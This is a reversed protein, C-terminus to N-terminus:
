ELLELVFLTLLLEFHQFVLVLDFAQFVALVVCLHHSLVSHLQCGLLLKKQYLFVKFLMGDQLGTPHVKVQKLLEVAVFGLLLLRVVLFYVLVFKQM